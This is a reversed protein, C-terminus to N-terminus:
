HIVTLKSMGKLAGQDFLRILYLGAPLETTNLTAPSERPVKFQHILQGASNYVQIAAGSSQSSSPLDIMTLDDAPNPYLLLTENANAVEELGVTSSIKLNDIYLNNGHGSTAKFQIMVNTNGAYDDLNVTETRWEDDAVPYYISAGSPPLTALDDKEKDYVVNWFAGCDVSVEVQLKDYNILGSNQYYRYAVDFNLVASGQNLLNLNKIYAYYINEAVSYFFPMQLMYNNDGLEKEQSYMKWGFEDENEVFYGEPLIVTEFPQSVPASISSGIIYFDVLGDNNSGNIDALGNSEVITVALQHFGASVQIQDFEIVDAEGTELSGEWTLYQPLESDVTYKILAASLLNSGYNIIEVSPNIYGTCQYDPVAYIGSVGGDNENEFFNSIFLDSSGKSVGPLLEPFSQAHTQQAFFVTSSLLFIFLRKM